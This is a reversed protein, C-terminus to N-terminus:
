KLKKLEKGLKTLREIKGNKLVVTDEIRVGFENDLYVGPEITFVSDNKLKGHSNPSLRVNEHIELGVGHGLSHTFFDGLGRSKLYDRAVADAASETDSARINREALANAQEVATYVKIFKESPNDGFYYTRTVDSRYGNYIAGTDILVVSEKELITGDTEHHPVASNAGFAVITEFSEGSGGSLRINKVLEEKVQLESVGETIFPLTKELAGDIIECARKINEREEKDKVSRLGNIIKSGDKLKVGAKKYKLYEAHTIKDFDAFLATIGKKEAELKVSEEDKLLVVKACPANLREKVAFFYRSDAFYILEEGDVMVVGEAFDEGSFYYRNERDSVLLAKKRNKPLLRIM